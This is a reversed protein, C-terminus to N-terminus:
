IQIAAATSAQGAASQTRARLREFIRNLRDIEFVELLEEPVHADDVVLGESTQRVDDRYFFM